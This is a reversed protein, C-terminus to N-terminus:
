LTVTGRITHITTLFGFYPSSSSGAISAFIGDGCHILKDNSYISFPARESQKWTEFDRTVYAIRGRIICFLDYAPSYSYTTSLFTFPLSKEVWTTGDESLAVKGLGIACLRNSTTLEIVGYVPSDDSFLKKRSWSIGDYSSLLYNGYTSGSVYGAFFSQYKSSWCPNVTNAGYSRNVYTQTANAPVILKGGQKTIEFSSFTEPFSFNRSVASEEQEYKSSYKFHTLLYKKLEPSHVIRVDPRSSYISYDDYIRVNYEYGNEDLEKENHSNRTFMHLNQLGYTKETTSDIILEDGYQINSCLWYPSLVEGNEIYYTRDRACVLIVNGDESMALINTDGSLGEGYRILSAPNLVRAWENRSKRYFCPAEYITDKIASKGTGNVCARITIVNSNNKYDSNIYQSTPSAIAVITRDDASYDPAIEDLGVSFWELQVDSLDNPLKTKREWLIHGTKEEEIKVVNGEPIAIDTVSNSQEEVFQM